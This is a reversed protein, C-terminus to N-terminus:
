AARELVADINRQHATFRVAYVEPNHEWRTGPKAHLSNWLRRYEAIYHSITGGLQGSGGWLVQSHLPEHLREVGESLVDEESIDQLRELGIAEVKLSLRSAWRPMFRAPNFPGDYDHGPDAQFLSWQPM